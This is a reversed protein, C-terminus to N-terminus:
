KREHESKVFFSKEFYYPRFVNSDASYIHYNELIGRVYNLGKHQTRVSYVCKFKKNAYVTDATTSDKLLFKDDFDGVILRLIDYQPHILQIEFSYNDAFNITDKNSKIIFYNSSDIVENGDKDYLTYQNLEEGYITIIYDKLEKIKGNEYFCVGKGKRLDNSYYYVAKIEGSEYYYVAKGNKFGDSYNLVAGIKGDRYFAKSEGNAKGNKYPVVANLYGDINFYKVTDVIQGEKWLSVEKIQGTEYYKVCKGDRDKNKLTVELILHGNADYQREKDIANCAFFLLIIICLIYKM